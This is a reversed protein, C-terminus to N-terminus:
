PVFEYAGLDFPASRPNGELDTASVGTVYEPAGKGIAASNEKLRYDQNERLIEKFLPDQNRLINNGNLVTDSKV